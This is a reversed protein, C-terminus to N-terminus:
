SVSLGMFYNRGLLLYQTRCANCKSVEITRHLRGRQKVLFINQKDEIKDKDSYDMNHAVPIIFDDGDIFFAIYKGDTEKDLVFGAKRFM